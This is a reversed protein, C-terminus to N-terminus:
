HSKATGNRPKTGNKSPSKPTSYAVRKEAVGPLRLPEELLRQRSLSVYEPSVDVGVFNRGLRIAAQATTGSGMFPDLVVDGPQTFLKIFWEPLEIPFAASHNRNGCETAMHIVNNPYVRDRGLWNSVNKGFGSGVRSEDRMKDIDSLKALRDKAWDGVPVM